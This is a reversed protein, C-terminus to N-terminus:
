AVGLIPEEPEHEALVAAVHAYHHQVEVLPLGQEHAYRSSLYDPHRDCAILEPTFDYLRPLDTIVQRFADHAEPTSLDGIHQSLIVQDGFAIAITNKLHAGVALVCPGARHLRLPLPAYGRARRFYQEGRTTVRVVSDDLHRAIPRDHTLFVDALRVLRRRADDDRFAIPEDHRNGSTCVVPFNLRAMLLHHLPSYPLMVGLNPNGPAVASALDSAKRRQLLVIPAAPSRLLASAAKSVRCHEKVSELNPFMVALPKEERQKRQRLEQVAQESLADCLLQYGGIGKLALIHGTRLLGVAEKLPEQNDDGDEFKLSLRPGCRHCANPQAHFRRDRPNHYERECEPCMAFSRMETNPRDYPIDNIISFRPGCNTCNTFAYGERRDQHSFIEQLCDPCTALDPLITVTKAQSDDSLLIIFGTEGPKVPLDDVAISAIHSVPPAEDVVRQTFASVAKPQGQIETIVGGATNSVSGTLDLEEALRYVFPRFGVGQVAGQIALRIRRM